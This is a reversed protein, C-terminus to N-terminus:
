AVREAAAQGNDNQDEKKRMRVRMRVAQIERLATAQGSLLFSLEVAIRALRGDQAMIASVSQLLELMRANATLAQDVHENDIYGHPKRPTVM